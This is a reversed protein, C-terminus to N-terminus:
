ASREMFHRESVKKLGDLVLTWNKESHHVEDESGNNDQKLMVRTGRPVETLEYVLTHYNEAEDPQGSMPSFHTMALRRHPEVELIKGKDEYSKGEYEGRWTITSGPKWDTNVDSGFMFEKILPPSTLAAWVDAPSAAIDTSVTAVLGTM